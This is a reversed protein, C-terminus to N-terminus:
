PPTLGAAIAERVEPEAAAVSAELERCGGLLAVADVVREIASM